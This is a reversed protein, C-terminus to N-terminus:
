NWQMPANHPESLGLGRGYNFLTPGSRSHSSQALGSRSKRSQDSGGVQRELAELSHRIKIGNQKLADLMEGLKDGLVQQSNEATPNTYENAFNWLPSIKEEVMQTFDESMAKPDGNYMVSLKDAFENSAGLNDVRNKIQMVVRKSNELGDVRYKLGVVRREVNDM